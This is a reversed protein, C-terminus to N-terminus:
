EIDAQAGKGLTEGGTSFTVGYFQKTYVYNLVASFEALPGTYHQITRKSEGAPAAVVISERLEQMRSNGILKLGCHPQGLTDRRDGCLERAVADTTHVPVNGGAMDLALVSQKDQETWTYTAM